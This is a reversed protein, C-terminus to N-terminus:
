ARGRRTGKTKQSWPVSYLVKTYRRYVKWATQIYMKWRDDSRVICRSRNVLRRFRVNLVPGGKRGEVAIGFLRLMWFSRDVCTRSSFIFMFITILIHVTVDVGTYKNRSGHRPVSVNLHVTHRDDLGLLQHWSSPLCIRVREFHNSKVATVAVILVFSIPINETSYCGCVRHGPLLANSRLCLAGRCSGPNANPSSLYPLHEPHNSILLDNFPWFKM